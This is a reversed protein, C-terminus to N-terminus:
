LPGDKTQKNPWDHLVLSKQEAKLARIAGTCFLKEEGYVIETGKSGGGLLSLLCGHQTAHRKTHKKM